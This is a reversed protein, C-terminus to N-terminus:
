DSIYPILKPRCTCVLEDDNLDGKPDNFTAVITKIIVDWEEKTFLHAFCSSDSISVASTSTDDVLVEFYSDSGTTSLGRLIDELDSMAEDADMLKMSVCLRVMLVAALIQDRTMEKDVKFDVMGCSITSTHKGTLASLCSTYPLEFVFYGLNGAVYDWKIAEWM